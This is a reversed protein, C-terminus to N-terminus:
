NVTFLLWGGWRTEQHLLPRLPGWEAAAGQAATTTTPTATDMPAEYLFPLHFRSTRSQRPFPCHQWRSPLCFSPTKIEMLHLCPLLDGRFIKYVYDGRDLLTQTQLSSGFCVTPTCFLGYSPLKHHPPVYSNGLLVSLAVMVKPLPYLKVIWPREPLGPTIPSAPLDALIFPTHIYNVDDSASSATELPFASSYNPQQHAERVFGEARYVTGEFADRRRPAM